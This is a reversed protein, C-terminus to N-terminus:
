KAREEMSVGEPLPQIMMVGGSVPKITSYVSESPTFPLDGYEWVRPVTPIMMMLIMCITILSGSLFIIFAWSWRTSWEHFEEYNHM